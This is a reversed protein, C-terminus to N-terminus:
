KGFRKLNICETHPPFACKQVSVLSRVIDIHSCDRVCLVQKQQLLYIYGYWLPKDTVFYRRLLVGAITKLKM